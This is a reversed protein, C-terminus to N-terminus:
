AGGRTFDILAIIFLTNLTGAIIIKLIIPMQMTPDTLFNLPFFFFNLTILIGLILLPIVFNASFGALLGVALVVMFGAIIAAMNDSTLSVGFISYIGPGAGSNTQGSTVNSYTIPQASATTNPNPGVINTLFKSFGTDGMMPQFGGLYLMLTLSLM